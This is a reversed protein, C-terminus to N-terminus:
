NLLQCASNKCEENVKRTSAKALVMKCVGELRSAGVPAGQEQMEALASCTLPQGWPMGVTRGFGAPM